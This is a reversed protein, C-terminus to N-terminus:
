QNFVLFYDKATEVPSKASMIGSMVAVGDAGASQVSKIREASIGGIAVVPISLAETIAHLAQIGQPKLQDKSATKYIHGFIVYDAGLREAEIAEEKSHVSKGILLHPYKEKVLDVPPSHFALQVGKCEKMHAVDVRDNIILKKPSVGAQVLRNILSIYESATKRKERLHIYYVYPDIERCISVLEEETHRGDSIVHIGHAQM